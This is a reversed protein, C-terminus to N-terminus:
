IMVKDETVVLHIPQFSWTQRQRSFYRTFDKPPERLIPNVGHTMVLFGIIEPSTQSILELLQQPARLEGSL